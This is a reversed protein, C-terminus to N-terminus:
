NTNLLEEAIMKQIEEDLIEPNATPKSAVLAGVACAFELAKELNNNELLSTVLAALFGDGAGVTDAVKVRFGPHEYFHGNSYLLAGNEGRTICTIKTRSKQSIFITNEKLDNTKSGILKSFILLEEENLKFLDSIGALEELIAANYFPARLNIDFVKYKAISLLVKLTKATIENRCALSGFILADAEAVAKKNEDTLLIEDWASPHDIVYSGNGKADLTVFVKGTHLHRNRQVLRTNVGSKNLIEILESGLDENGVSSIMKVPLGLAALRLAVNMTAGGPVLRDPFVDWIM